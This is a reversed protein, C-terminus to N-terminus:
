VVSKRDQTQEIEDELESKKLNYTEILAALTSASVEIDYVEKLENQKAEIAKKLTEYQKYSNELQEDLKNLTNNFESKLNSIIDNISNNSLKDADQVILKTEKEKIVEEPKLEKKKKEEVVELLENYADLIQQKTNTTSFKKFKSEPM